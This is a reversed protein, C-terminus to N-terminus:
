CGTVPSEWRVRWRGNVRELLSVATGTGDDRGLFVVVHRPSGTQVVALPETATVEEERGSVREHWAIRWSSAERSSASVVVFVREELPRDEQPVRRVLEGMVFSETIGQSRFARTVRFPLGRFASSSDEALGSALRTLSAALLASDRAPLTEISDLVVADVRGSALAIRWSRPAGGVSDQLRPSLRGTPWSPCSAGSSPEVQSLVREGHVGERGYLTVVRSGLRAGIGVTDGLPVELPLLPSLVFVVTGTGDELQPLLLLPGLSPDYSSPTLRAASDVPTIDITVPALAPERVAPAPQDRCGFSVASLVLGGAIRGAFRLAHSQAVRSSKPHASV